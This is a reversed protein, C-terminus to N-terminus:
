WIQLQYRLLESVCEAAGWHPASGWRFLCMSILLPLSHIHSISLSLFLSLSLSTNLGAHVHGLYDLSTKAEDYYKIFLLVKRQDSLLLIEISWFHFTVSLIHLTVSLIHLTVSLIQFVTWLLFLSLYSFCLLIKRKSWFLYKYMCTPVGACSYRWM